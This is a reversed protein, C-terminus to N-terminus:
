RHITWILPNRLRVEDIDNPKIIPQWAGKPLYDMNQFIRDYLKEM